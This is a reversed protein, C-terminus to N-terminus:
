TSYIDVLSEFVQVEVVNNSERLFSSHTEVLYYSQLNKGKIYRIM